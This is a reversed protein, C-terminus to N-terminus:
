DVELARVRPAFVRHMENLRKALWEHQHPWDKRDALDVDKLYCAIRSDRADPLEEWVLPHGLEREIEPKQNKLLGFFTKALDGKIYLEARV